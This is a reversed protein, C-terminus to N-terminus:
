VDVVIRNGAGDVAEAGEETRLATEGRMRKGEPDFRPRTSIQAPRREGLVEVEVSAGHSVSDPHLYALALSENVVHGFGGSSVYGVYDGGRFVPEGGACDADKAEVVLTTLIEAPGKKRAALAADRGIFDPKSWDVFRALGTEAPGYDSSLELGWAPFSKELRLEM